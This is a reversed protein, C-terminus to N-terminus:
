NRAFRSWIFFNVLPNAPYLFTHAVYEDYHEGIVTEVAETCAMASKEGLLATFGGLIRGALAWAPTLASPRTRYEDLMASAACLHKRENDWMEMMLRKTVQDGRFGFVDAQAEYITNAAIEGAHDVRLMSSVAKRDAPSLAALFSESKAAREALSPTSKTFVDSALNETRFWRTQVHHQRLGNRSLRSAVRFMTNVSAFQQQPRVKRWM